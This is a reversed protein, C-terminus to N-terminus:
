RHFGSAEVFGKSPRRTVPQDALWEPHGQIAIGFPHDVLNIVAPLNREDKGQYTMVGIIPQSVNAGSTIFFPASGM